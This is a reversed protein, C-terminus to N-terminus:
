LTDISGAGRTRAADPYTPSVMRVRKLSAASVINTQAATADRAATLERRELVAVAGLVARGKPGANGTGGEPFGGSGFVRQRGEVGVVHHQLDVLRQELDAAAVLALMGCGVQLVLPPPAAESM